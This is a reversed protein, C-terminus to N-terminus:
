PQKSWFATLKKLRSNSAAKDAPEPNFVEDPIFGAPLQTAAAELFSVLYSNMNNPDFHLPSNCSQAIQSLEAVFRNFTEIYPTNRSGGNKWAALAGNKPRPWTETAAASEIRGAVWSLQAVKPGAQSAGGQNVLDEIQNRVTEPQDAESSQDLRLAYVGLTLRAQPSLKDISEKLKRADKAIQGLEKAVTDMEVSRSAMRHWRHSRALLERMANAFTPRFHAPVQALDCLRELAASPVQFRFADRVPEFPNPASGTGPGSGNSM